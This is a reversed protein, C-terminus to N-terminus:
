LGGFKIILCVLALLIIAGVLRAIGDMWAAREIMKRMEVYAEFEDQTFHNNM